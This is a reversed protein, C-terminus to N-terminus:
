AAPTDLGVRIFARAEPFREDVGHEIEDLLARAKDIADTGAAGRLRELAARSRAIAVLVYKASGAPDDPAIPLGGAMRARAVLARVLRLYIRVHHWRLVEHPSPMWGAPKRAPPLHDFIVAGAVHTAYALAVGALPDATSMASQDANGSVLADLEYTPVGEVAAVDRTFAIAENM